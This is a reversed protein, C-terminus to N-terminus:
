IKDASPFAFFPFCILHNIVSKSQVDYRSFSYLIFTAIYNFSDSPSTTQRDDFRFSIVFAFPLKITRRSFAFSFLSLELLLPCQANNLWTDPENTEEQSRWITIIFCTHDAFVTLMQFAIIKRVLKECVTKATRASLCM